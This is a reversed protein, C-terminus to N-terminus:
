GSPGPGITEAWRHVREMVGEFGLEACLAEFEPRPVGRWELDDLTATGIDADTNLTALRRYLAAEPRHERLTAALTAAGRVPVEWDAASDPIADLHVWRRLV